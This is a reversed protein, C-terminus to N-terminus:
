PFVHSIAAGPNAPSPPQNTYDGHCVFCNSAPQSASAQTLSGPTLQQFTEMTSNALFLSGFQQSGSLFPIVGNSWLAGSQFYNALVTGNGGAAALQGSLSSQLSILLTNNVLVPDTVAQTNSQQNGWPNLRVVSSPTLSLPSPTSSSSFTIAVSGNSATSSTATETIASPAVPAGAQGNYFITPTSDSTSLPVTTICQTNPNCATGQSNLNNNLYSYTADPANFTTEFTAWIMEPHGAVSGVVHMGVLALTRTATTKGDSTLVVLGNVTSQTFAPVDAAIKILGASQAATLYATDVWASKVELALQNIDGYTKGAATQIDTAQQSTIPFNGANPGNNYYNVKSLNQALGAYVDNVQITYYVIPYTAYTTNTPVPVPQGNVVLVGGGGAQATSGANPTQAAALKLQHVSMKPKNVRVRFLSRFPGAKAAAKPLSSGETNQTFNFSSTAPNELAKPNEEATYFTPSFILLNGSSDTSTLWLFMQSGWQYFSCFGNANTFGASSPPVFSLNGGTSPGQWSSFVSSSVACTPAPPPLAQAKASNQVAIGTLLLAM